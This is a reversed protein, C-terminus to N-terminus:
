DKITAAELKTPAFVENPMIPEDEVAHEVADASTLSRL